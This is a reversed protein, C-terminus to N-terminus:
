SFLGLQQDTIAALSDSLFYLISDAVPALQRDIYHQYDLASQQGDVPEPGNLTIVYEIWDGRRIRGGFGAVSKRAAQVHPPVNRQYDALKRRLRKRYVLQEDYKGQMVDAVTQQVFQQYPEDFFVRRYLEMQFNRALRTWDTRVSELGKFVLEARGNNSVVGAYRKKSGQESGRVTPMLFRDYLTEFEIELASDIAYETRLKSRWWDNLAVELEAALIRAQVADGCDKLWVFVSDTDGYIVAWGRAEIFSATQQLIQHGRRTISSALRSDFFRCGASGLVGYFSNMLIKIAQSLAVDQNQKAYDRYLWLEEILAPLINNNKAFWAGNFGPVLESQDLGDQLGVVMGMPDIKFSRIISPYLSKFDLVAVYDYIGPRSDMVFGGPSQEINDRQHGNPAVYGQRHLLPLYRFDFAAVSGGLRDLPLGTLQTRAIAFNLLGAKEFIDWVLKCDQVNYDALAQKDTLFLETIKEGRDSSQILKGDGLLINAVRNLAFSDFRHGGIKLLEIGDLVVRGPIQLTRREGEEDLARWYAKSNDRGCAFDLRHKDCVRQLYWMDFNVVNWGIIIDPDFDALWQFFRRLLAKEDSFIEVEHGLRQDSVMLVKRLTEGDRVGYLGISYLAVGQMATEIDLSVVTLVPHYDSATIRTPVISQHTARQSPSLETVPSQDLEISYSLSGRVFREMLFRDQPKIDAEFVSISAAALIDRADRLSRQSRFYIANVAQSHFNKLALTKCEPPPSIRSKLLQQAQTVQHAAVFFVAQQDPVILQVPGADSTVWICLEIGGPKDRWQSTLVFGSYDTM